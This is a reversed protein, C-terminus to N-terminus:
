NSWRVAPCCFARREGPKWNRHPESGSSVPRPACAFCSGSTVGVEAVGGCTVGIVNEMQSQKTVDTKHKFWWFNAHRYVKGAAPPSSCGLLSPVTQGEAACEAENSSFSLFNLSLNRVATRSDPKSITWYDLVRGIEGRLGRVLWLVPKLHVTKNSCTIIDYWGHLIKAYDGFAHLSLIM